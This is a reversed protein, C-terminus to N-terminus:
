NNELYSLVEQIIPNEISLDKRDISDLALIDPVIGIQPVSDGQANYTRFTIPYLKYKYGYASIPKMGVDKGVTTEGVVIVKIYPRLCNIILESCSASRSDVLVFLRDLGLNFSDYNFSDKFYSISYISGTEKLNKLSYNQNYRYYCFIKGRTRASIFSSLHIGTDILGGPNGRLDIVLENVKNKKLKSFVETIDSASSFEDYLFYGVRYNQYTWVTDLSITENLNVSRTYAENEICYSFRDEKVLLSKFFEKPHLSYDYALSDRLQDNWFYADRMKSFIWANQEQRWKYEDSDANSSVHDNLVLFSDEKQCSILCILFFICLCIERTRKM